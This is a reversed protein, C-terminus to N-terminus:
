GYIAVIDYLKAMDFIFNGYVQDKYFNLPFQDEDNEVPKSLRYFIKLVIGLVKNLQNKIM